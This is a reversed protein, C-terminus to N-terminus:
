DALVAKGPEREFAKNCEALASELLMRLELESILIGKESLMESASSLAMQLKEEGHLDKYIQEVAQVVTRAIEKKTRDAIVKEYLHKAAIGIYGIIATLISYLITAGYTSIFENLM